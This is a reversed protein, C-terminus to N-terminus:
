PLLIVQTFWNKALDSCFLREGVCFYVLNIKERLGYSGNEFLETTVTPLWAVVGHVVKKMSSNSVSFASLKLLMLVIKKALPNFNVFFNVSIIRDWSFLHM